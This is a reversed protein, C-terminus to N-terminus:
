QTSNGCVYLVKGSPHLVDWRHQFAVSFLIIAQITNWLALIHTIVSFFLYTDDEAHRGLYCTPLFFLTGLAISLQCGEVANCVVDRESPFYRWPEVNFFARVTLLVLAGVFFTVVADRLM